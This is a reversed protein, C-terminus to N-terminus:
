PTTTPATTPDPAPVPCFLSTNDATLAALGSFATGDRWTLSWTTVRRGALDRSTVTVDAAQRAAPSSMGLDAATVASCTGPLTVVVTAAASGSAATVPVPDSCAEPHVTSCQRAQISSYVTGPELTFDPQWTRGEDFSYRLALGRAARLAPAVVQTYSYTRESVQPTARVSYTPTGSPPDFGGFSYAPSGAPAAGAAGFGNSGCVLVWYETDNALGTFTSTTQVLLDRGGVVHAQGALDAVCRAGGDTSVAYQLSTPRQSGNADVAAGAVTLSTGSASVTGGSVVPLGAVLVTTVGSTGNADQAGLPPLFRSAPTVKVVQQGVPMDITVTTTAGTRDFAQPQGDIAFARVDSGATVQVTVRGTTTTTRAADYVPEATVADISPAQYAWTTLASTDASEGVKNAVRATYTHQEGNVLGSVTCRYTAAGAPACSDSVRRGGEYVAAGTLGPHAGVAAGLAVDLQVSSGTYSATTISAPAPPYGLVDLDLRGGGVRGQADLVTFPVTCTGGAPRDTAPWTVTVSDTGAARVTAATCEVTGGTGVQGLTLGAGARGAFPDYEGAVGVVRVTCSSGRSVDCDAGLTAGRPADPAAAGVVLDISAHLGGFAAVQVDVTARTGPVAGALATVTVSRGQQDLTFATGRLSSTYVLQSTDGVRGGEWATMSTLDVTESAGPAVTRSLSSLVAQPAQPAVALPVVVATYTQQGVIRVPVTCTDSWPAGNGATYRVVTGHVLACRAAPRQVPLQAAQDLEITDGAALAVVDRVDVDVSSGEDVPVPALNDVTGVRMDDFSPIRLFGYVTVPQGDHDAGTLSFPVVEGAAPLAGTLRTGHVAYRQAASGWVALTLASLDGTPWSVKGTVVDIGTTSLEARQRATVVTDAVVPREVGAAATVEIVILGEATSGTVSSRVTYVYSHVGLVDGARLAVVGDPLSTAPDVLGALRAREPDDPQQPADPRLATLALTGGAPDTDNLLPLVTLPANAGQRVRVRDTYAVPATGSDGSALVGIRVEGTGQAGAPDRVTYQLSLQQGAALTPAADVVLADGKESITASGSGAPPQGVGVLTVPDGDPDAGAGDFPIRVTHGPAVRATLVPPGPPRNSGAAVVTVTLTSTAFATADAVLSVTYRVLYVGPVTPAVYRVQQGSAFALEGDAGSAAVADTVVLRAGGPAIDNSTVPVDVQGGARVTVADPLAIPPEGYTSPVLFVTLSGTATLQAGDTVTVTVTGVLGPRGDATSGRLRLQAGDVVDLGLAPDSSTASSVLLVHDTTSQVASLVDVTTDEHDRVFATMPSMSLGAAGEPCSVRLLASQEAGTVQDHVTYTVQFEGAAHATVVVTGASANPVVDLQSATSGVAVADVLRYSGSGSSIHDAVTVTGPTRPGVVLAVPELELAPAATVAVDLTRSTSAGVSDTVTVTVPISGAAGNPDTHHLTLTGDSAAVVQLPATPDALTAGTLVVPDGEPDVWDDLVRVRVTGGPAIDPSPWTQVCDDVGCWVPASNTAGDVVRLTVTVPPSTQMGDSVAYSFTATGSTAAVHVVLLQDDQALRVQGFAPDSLGGALSGPDITLVDSVNPDHDNLLVPLRVDAGARVGFSDAVAVPPMEETVDDVHTTGASTTDQQIPSWQSLPIATGDPVTWALGSAREELVARDGNSAIVPNVQEVQALAARDVVLPRTGNRDSTWLTGDTTSVWGAVVVGGDLVVPRAPTGSAQATRTARGSRLEVEVLGAGDALYLSRGTSSPMAPVVDDSVDLSVPADHGALWLRHSSSDLLAWTGAVLTLALDTTTSPPDPVAVPGSVLRGTSADLVRVAHEADSYVAVRGSSDVTAVTAAYGTTAEPDAGPDPDLRTPTGTGARAIQQVSVAGADTLYLLWPGSAVTSTTGDPTAASGTTQDQAPRLDVPSAPDVSWVTRMGQTLISTTAGDQVVTSPDDVQRVTDIQALDTDVRAYQGGDRVLWVSSEVPRTHQADYGEALVAGTLVAAVATVVAVARIRGARGPRALAASM